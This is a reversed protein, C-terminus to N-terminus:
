CAQWQKWSGDLVVFDECFQIYNCCIEESKKKPHCPNIWTKAAWLRLDKDSLGTSFDQGPCQIISTLPHCYNVQSAHILWLPITVPHVSTCPWLTFLPAQKRLSEGETTHAQCPEGPRSSHPCMLHFGNLTFLSSNHESAPGKVIYKWAPFCMQLFILKM